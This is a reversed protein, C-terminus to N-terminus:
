RGYREDIEQALQKYAIGGPSTPAYSSIPQRALKAEAITTNRPIATHFVLEGYRERTKNEITVSVNTRDTMTCFIGGIHLQPNLDRVLEVTAELKPIAKYADPHAQLPILVADAAALANITFLGLTPPPDILVYDYQNRTQKLAKALLQERGIKGALELEAGALDITSPILDVGADTTITAFATGQQPNLLVEYTSYEHESEGVGFGDTANAQPDIDIILVKAGREALLPGLNYVSATKGSGGKQIAFALVHGM